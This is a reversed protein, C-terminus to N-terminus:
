EEGNHNMLFEGILYRDDRAAEHAAEFWRDIGARSRSGIQFLVHVAMCFQFLSKRLIGLEVFGVIPLTFGGQRLSFIATFAYLAVQYSLASGVLASAIEKTTPRAFEEIMVTRDLSDWEWNLLVSRLIKFFRAARGQNGQWVLGIEADADEEDNNRANPNPNGDENLPPELIGNGVNSWFRRTFFKFYLLFSWTNLVVTGMLWSIGLTKWDVFAEERSFWSPSKVVVFEYSLGLALPAM